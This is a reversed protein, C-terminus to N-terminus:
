QRSEIIGGGIVIDGDYLVVSQGPTVAPQPEDFVVRIKGRGVPYVTSSAEKHNLRIKAEARLPKHIGEVSLLNIDGAILEYSYVSSKPGVIITNTSADIRTVYLPWRSSIGLGKRQGITYFIIGKHEGITNGHPDVIKGKNVEEQEFLFSYDGGSIFDQSEKMCDVNLGKECAIEIIERKKYEGIPFLMNSLQEKRLRYLFYSQDKSRDLARKLLFKEGDTNKIRAYHGTAFLDFDVVKERTKRLLLDFKLISNCVICPNPTRGSLYEHKFYTIVHEKFEKRLDIRFFPIDLRKCLQEAKNLDEEEEPGYCAHGRPINIDANKDYIEMSVGIVEYGSEKLLIAAVSSDVGGSMGLAVREKRKRM